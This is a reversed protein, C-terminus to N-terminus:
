AGALVFGTPGAEYCIRLQYKGGERVKKVLKELAHLDHTITKLFCPEGEKEAVAVAITDKHVDLGVHRIIKELNTAPEKLTNSKTMEVKTARSGGPRLGRKNGAEM